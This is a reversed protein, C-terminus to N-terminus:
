KNKKDDDVVEYDADVVDDERPASSGGDAGPQPGAQNEGGAAGAQANAQQYVKGFVDYSLQSLRDSAAKIADTDTGALANKV